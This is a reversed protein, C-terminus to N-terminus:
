QPVHYLTGRAQGSYTVTGAEILRNLATRIHAGTLAPIKTRIAVAPVGETKGGLDVLSEFVRKEIEERGEQTRPNMASAKNKPAKKTDMRPPAARKGNRPAATKTLFLQGLTVSALEPYREVLAGLEAISAKSEGNVLGALAQSVITGFKQTLSM